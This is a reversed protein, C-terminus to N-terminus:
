DAPLFSRLVYSTLDLGRRTLRLRSDELVLLGARAHEAIAAAHLTRADLGFRAELADLDVGEVLRLGMMLADFLAVEASPTESWEVATGETAVARAYAAPDDVNKWRTRGAHSHAGAGLGVWEQDRWYALNHRSAEGPRAFNSIEYRLYGAAELQAVAVHLHALDRDDDPAPLRGRRVLADFPTGAEITLVYASVHDPGLATVCSVDRAQEGLSQGPIALILDLSVREIGGARLRDVAHGIQAAQHIRGLTRLHAEHFSQGGVSVRDVGAGALVAVKEADLSGPNAEVTFEGIRGGAADRIGELVRAIRGADGYTPTGGGVYLTELGTGPLRARAEALLAEAYSEM